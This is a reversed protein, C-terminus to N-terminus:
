TMEVRYKKQPVCPSKLLINQCSKETNDCYKWIGFFFFLEMTCNTWIVQTSYEFDKSAMSYNETLLM